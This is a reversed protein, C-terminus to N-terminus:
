DPLLGVYRLLSDSGSAFQDLFRAVEQRLRSLDDAWEHAHLVEDKLWRWLKEIPNLWSAYTPLYLPVIDLARAVAVVDEHKNPPWNDRVVYVKREPYLERVHRYQQQLAELGFHNGQQYFVRGTVGDMMAGVRSMHNEGTARWIRKQSKGRRWYVPAKTPQKYYTLDDAFLIAVEEPHVLAELFAHSLARCKVAFLPDPSRIFSIVQKRSFGLRKLIKCVGAKTKDRLWGIVQPLDELRWRNRNLGFRRPSRALTRQVEAKAEEKTNLNM